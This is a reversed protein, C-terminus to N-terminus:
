EVLEPPDIFTGTRWDNGYADSFRYVVEPAGHTEAFVPNGHGDDRLKRPLPEGKSDEFRLTFTGGSLAESDPKVVHLLANEDVWRAEPELVWQVDELYVDLIALSGYNSVRLTWNQDHPNRDIEERVLRAQARDAAVRERNRERRDRTAILLATGAAVFSGLAGLWQGFGSYWDVSQGLDHAIQSAAYLSVVLIATIAVAWFLTGHSRIWNHIRSRCAPLPDNTMILVYGACHVYGPKTSAGSPKTNFAPRM